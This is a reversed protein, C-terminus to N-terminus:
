DTEDNGIAVFVFAFVMGSGLMTLEINPTTNTFISFAMIFFLFLFTIFGAGFARCLFEFVSNSLVKKM